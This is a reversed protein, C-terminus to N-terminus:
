KRGRWRAMRAEVRAMVGFLLSVVIACGLWALALLAWASWHGFWSLPSM